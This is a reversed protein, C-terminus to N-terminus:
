MPKHTKMFIECIKRIVYYVVGGLEYAIIDCIDGVSNTRFLPTVVEWFIGCAFLIVIWIHLPLEAKAYHFVLLYMAASFAIAGFFDNWYCILFWHFFGTTINKLLLKNLLYLSVAVSFISINIFGIQKTKLIHIDKM